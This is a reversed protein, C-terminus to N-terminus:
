LFLEVKQSASKNAKKCITLHASRGSDHTLDSALALVCNAYSLMVLAPPFPKGRLREM